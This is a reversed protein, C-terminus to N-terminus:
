PTMLQQLFGDKGSLWPLPALSRTENLDQSPTLSSTKASASPETTSPSDAGHGLVARTGTERLQEKMPLRQLLSTVWSSIKNPLPVIQFRQPLQSPRSERLIKTPENFSCDFDRLLANVVNNEWGPFWQSYEKIGAEFFLTTHHRAINIRVRSQVPDANEGIFEWSNTKRLWGVSTSSDMTSLTCDGRKLRSALMDVWPFIMSAIYEFLNNSTWFLLDEPMKFRWAFGKDSYGGLGFPCSDLQNIHTPQRFAILNMDIGNKAIDLFCLMLTLDDQSIDSIQISHRHTARQQLEPLRSLFHHVGPVVLALHGLQGITSELEKATTM